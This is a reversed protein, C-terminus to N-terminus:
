GGTMDQVDVGAPAEFVFRDDDIDENLELNTWDMTSIVNEEADIIKLKVLVGSEKDFYLERENDFMADPSAVRRTARVAFSDRGDVETDDLRDLDFDVAMEEFLLKFDGTMAGEPESKMAQVMPQPLISSEMRNVTYMYEGDFIALLSMDMPMPETMTGSLETRTRMEDKDAIIEAEHTGTMRQEAVGPPATVQTLDCSYSELNGWAKELEAQLEQIEAPLEVAETPEAMPDNQAYVPAAFPLSLALGLTLTRIPTRM